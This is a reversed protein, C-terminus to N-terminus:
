SFFEPLNWNEEGLLSASNLSSMKWIEKKMKVIKVISVRSDATLRTIEMM